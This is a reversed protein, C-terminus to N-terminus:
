ESAEAANGTTGLKSKLWEVLREAWSGAVDPSIENLILKRRLSLRLSAQLSERQDWDIGMNQAATEAVKAALNYAEAVGEAKLFDAIVAVVPTLEATLLPMSPKAKAKERAPEETASTEVMEALAKPLTEAKVVLDAPVEKLVEVFAERDLGFLLRSPVIRMNVVEEKKGAVNMSVVLIPGAEDTEVKATMSVVQDIKKSLHEFRSYPERTVILDPETGELAALLVGLLADGVHFFVEPTIRAFPTSFVTKAMRLRVM